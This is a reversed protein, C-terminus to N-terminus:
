KPKYEQFTMPVVGAKADPVFVLQSGYRYLWGDPIKLRFTSNEGAGPTHELVLEWTLETTGAPAGIM